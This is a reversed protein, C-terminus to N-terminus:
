QVQKMGQKRFVVKEASKIMDACLERIPIQLYYKPVTTKENIGDIKIKMTDKTHSSKTVNDHNFIWDNLASIVSPTIKSYGKKV